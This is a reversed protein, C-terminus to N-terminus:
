RGFRKQLADRAERRDAGELRPIALALAETFDVGPTDRLKTMQRKREGGSAEVLSDSLRGAKPNDGQAPIAPRKKQGERAKRQAAAVAQKDEPALASKLAKRGKL